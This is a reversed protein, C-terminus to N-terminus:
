EYSLRTKSVSALNGKYGLPWTAYRKSYPTKRRLLFMSVTFRKKKNQKTKNQKELKEILFRPQYFIMYLQHARLIDCNDIEPISQRVEFEEIRNSPGAGSRHIHQM